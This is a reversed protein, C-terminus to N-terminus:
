FIIIFILFQFTLSNDKFVIFLLDNIIEPSFQALFWQLKSLSIVIMFREFDMRCTISIQGNQPVNKKKLEFM